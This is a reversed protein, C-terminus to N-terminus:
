RYKGPLAPWTKSCANCLWGVHVKEIQKTDGWHPCLRGVTIEYDKANSIRPEDAM